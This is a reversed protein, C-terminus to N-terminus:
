FPSLYVESMEGSTECGQNTNVIKEFQFKTLKKFIFDVRENSEADNLNNRSLLTYSYAKEFNKEGFIGNSYAYAMFINADELGSLAAANGFAESKKLVDIDFQSDKKGIVSQHQEILYRVNKAYFLQATISGNLAFRELLRLPDNVVENPIISCIETTVKSWPIVGSTDVSVPPCAKLLEIASIVSNVDNIKFNVVLQKPESLNKAILDQDNQYKENVVLNSTRNLNSSNCRKATVAKSKIQKLYERKEIHFENSNLAIRKPLVDDSECLFNGLIFIFFLVLTVVILTKRSYIVNM